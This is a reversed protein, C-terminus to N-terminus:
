LINAVMRSDSRLWQGEDCYRYIEQNEIPVVKVKPLLEQIQPNLVKNDTYEALGARGYILPAAM